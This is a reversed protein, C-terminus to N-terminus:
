PDIVERLNNAFRRVRMGRAAADDLELAMGESIREGFCWLEDCKHLLAVGMRLGLAREGKDADDMFQPFLLHPAIPIGGRMLVFRCYERARQINGDVDGAFPSCVYIFSRDNHLDKQMM